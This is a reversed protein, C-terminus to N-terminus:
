QTNPIVSLEEHKASWDDDGWGGPKAKIDKSKSVPSPTHM